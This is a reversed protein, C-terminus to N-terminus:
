SRGKELLIHTETEGTRRFGLRGYFALARPNAKLVGLRVPLGLRRAKRVIRLMCEKGAGKGQHEPLIFLQNLELHDQEVVYSLFGVDAGSVNIIRVDQLSFRREHLERQRDEDWGWIKDVYEKFAARKTLYAFESDSATARRLRLNNM